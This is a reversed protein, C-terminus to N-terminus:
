EFTTTLQGTKPDAEIKGPLKLVIGSEPDDVGLYIALLSGFPNQNQSALFISGILPHDLTPTDIRVTGIKSADPCNAPAETFQPAGTRFGTETSVELPHTPTPPDAAVTVGAGPGTLSSSTTFVPAAGALQRSFLIRFSHTSGAVGLDTVTANNPGISA